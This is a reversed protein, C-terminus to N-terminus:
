GNYTYTTVMSVTKSAGRDQTPYQITSIWHFNDSYETNNEDIRSNMDVITGIALTIGPDTTKTCVQITNTNHILIKHGNEINGGQQKNKYEFIQGDWSVTQTYDKIKREMGMSGNTRSKIRINEM